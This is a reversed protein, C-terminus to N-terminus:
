RRPVGRASIYFAGRLLYNLPPASMFAAMSVAPRTFHKPAIRATLPISM